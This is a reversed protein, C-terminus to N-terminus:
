GQPWLPHPVSDKAKVFYRRFVEGYSRYIYGDNMDAYRAKSAAYIEPLEYWAAQPHMHHVVHLNNNLFMFALFGRDEIIVTRGRSKEHARHELFTRIKLISMGAYASVLYAWVPMPSVVVLALIGAVCVAHIAWAICVSRDGRRLARVEDQLFLATGIAPGLTIRGLLTNNAAFLKRKWKPMRSWVAPDLFNTEPDDYPDTLNSDRHHELHLDRFRHYPITLNLAPLVMLENLAKIQFPHGHLVEHTLSAHMAIICAMVPISLIPVWAALGFLCLGFAAYCAVILGLTSWEVALPRVRTRARTEPTM